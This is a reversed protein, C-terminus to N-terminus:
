YSIRVVGDGTIVAVPHAYLRDTELDMEFRAILTQGEIQERSLMRLLAAFGTRLLTVPTGSSDLVVFNKESDTALAAVELPYIPKKDALPSKIQAKVEKIVQAFDARAAAKARTYDQPTSRRMAAEEWRVRPNKDGPYIYLRPVDMVGFFSDESKIHNVARYPRFNQTLYIAGDTLSMWTGEDVLQARASDSYVDFGVQLLAANEVTLGQEQLETLKWAYGMREEITSHIRAEKSVESVELFAEYDTIKDGTYAKSRALLAAIYHIQETAETYSQARQADAALELLHTLAAQIGTIYYNGLEKIQDRYTSQAQRDLSGLGGQVINHLIREAVEIGELQTRCKKAASNARAKTMPKPGATAIKEATEAKKEARAQQKGRKLSVDEPITETTFSQGLAHCYLLGIVHKCPIQRSPCSCRPIPNAPNVFDVSCHYPNKGSGKCSGFILTEDDTKHLAIYSGKQALKLGNTAASSNGAFQNIFEQTIDM